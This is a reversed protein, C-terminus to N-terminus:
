HRAFEAAIHVADSPCFKKVQELSGAPIISLLSSGLKQVQELSGAPIVAKLGALATIQGGLSGFVSAAATVGAGLSGTQNLISTVNAEFANQMLKAKIAVGESQTEFGKGVAESDNMVGNLDEFRGATKDGGLSLPLAAAELLVLYKQEKEM